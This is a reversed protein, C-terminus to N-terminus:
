VGFVIDVRSPLVVVVAFFPPLLSPATFIPLLLSSAEFFLTSLVLRLVIFPWM